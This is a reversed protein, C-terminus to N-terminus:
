VHCFTLCPSFSKVISPVAFSTSCINFKHCLTDSVCMHVNRRGIQKHYCGTWLHRENRKRRYWLKKRKIKVWQHLKRYQLMEDKQDTLRANNGRTINFLHRQAEHRTPKWMDCGLPTFFTEWPFFLRSTYSSTGVNKADQRELKQLCIYLTCNGWDDGWSPQFTDIHERKKGPIGAITCNWSKQSTNDSYLAIVSQFCIQFHPRVHM